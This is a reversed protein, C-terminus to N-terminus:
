KGSLPRSDECVRDIPDQSLDSLDRGDTTESFGTFKKRTPNDVGLTATNAIVAQNNITPIMM